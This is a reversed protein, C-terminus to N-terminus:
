NTRRCLEMVKLLDDGNKFDIRNSKAFSDIEKKRTPYNKKFAGASAIVGKGDKVLMYETNTTFDYEGVPLPTSIQNGTTVITAMRGVSSASSMTGYGSEKRTNVLRTKKAAVLTIGDDDSMVEWFAGKVQLWVADGILIRSIELPFALVLIQNAGSLFYVDGTYLHINVRTQNESGDNAIITAERFGDFAFIMEPPLSGELTTDGKALVTMKQQAFVASSLCVAAIVPILIKM